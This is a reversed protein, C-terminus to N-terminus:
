ETAATIHPISAALNQGDADESNKPVNYHIDSTVTTTNSVNDHTDPVVLHTHIALEVQSVAWTLPHVNPHSLVFRWLM